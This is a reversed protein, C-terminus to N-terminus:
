YIVYFNWLFGNYKILIDDCFVLISDCFLIDVYLFMSKVYLVLIDDFLLFDDYLDFYWWLLYNVFLWLFM